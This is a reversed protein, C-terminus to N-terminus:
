GDSTASLEIQLFRRTSETIRFRHDMRYGCVWVIGRGGELIPIQPRLHLPVKEDTFFDGVNKFGPANLPWFRDGPRFSRVWLTEGVADYDVVEVKKSPVTPRAPLKSLLRSRFSVGFESLRVEQDVRVPVPDHPQAPLHFVLSGHDILIEWGQPLPFRAGIRRREILSHLAEIRAGPLTSRGLSLDDLILYIAHTRILRFYGLFADIDLVIKGQRRELTVKELVEAARQNLDAEYERFLSATRNLVAVADRNFHRTLYPLLEHRVRNRRFKLDRNTSDERYRVQSQNAYELVDARTAFLLPRVIAGRQVPMGALGRVAAGRFLNLLVTEAQDDATHAVALRQYGRDARIRELAQYRLNRAAEEISTGGGAAALTDVRELHFRCGLEEAVMHVFEADGDAEAGRLGHHVHAVGLRFPREQRLRSLLHLMVMSDVGGSVAALVPTDPPILGHEDIFSRFQVYLDM